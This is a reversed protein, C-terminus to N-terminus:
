RRGSEGKPTAGAAPLLSLIRFGTRGAITFPKAWAGFELRAVARQASAGLRADGTLRAVYAVAPYLRVDGGLEAIVARAYQRLWKEIEPDGTAAHTDALADALVGLKWEGSVTPGHAAVGRRAYGLAANKYRADGTAQYVALLAIQPWGWQRPNARLITTDLRRVLYDAIGRAAELAREDGSLYYFSLLGETWTHGLDVGSRVFNFHLPNKPHNMGVWAPEKPQAHIIDVDMFHRAAVTMAEHFAPKGTAVFGLAAVQAFDYELNGWCDCGKTTDHWGPFNWDGWNLMGFAGTRPREQAPPPCYIGAGEDWKERASRASVQPLAEGLRQLFSSSAPSAAAANPLAGSAVVAAPDLTVVLPAALAATFGAPPTHDFFLVAFEHTKAAGVGISAPPVEPPWLDYVLADPQLQFGKAYEQWFFRASIAIGGGPSEVELWGAAKGSRLRKDLRFGLNDEQVLALGAKSATGTIAPQGEVGIRYTRKETRPLPAQVALQQLPTFPEPGTAVFTFLVRVFAQGAYAHLRVVYDFGNAFEGRLEIEARVPGRDRVLVTRPPRPASLGTGGSALAAGVPGALLSHRDLQADELIAFRSRPVKFRLPGTDVAIAGPQEQVQVRAAASAAAVAAGGSTIHYAQTGHAGVSAPFDALLWRVSGDDWRSLVRSQFAVATGGAPRVALTTADRLQGRPFPVGTTVPWASRALGHLEHVTM